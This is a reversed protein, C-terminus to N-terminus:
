GLTGAGAGTAEGSASPLVNPRGFQWDLTPIGDVLRQHLGRPRIGHRAFLQMSRSNRGPENITECGEVFDPLLSNFYELMDLSGWRHLAVAKFLDKLKSSGSIMCALNKYVTRHTSGQKVSEDDLEDQSDRMELEALTLMAYLRMNQIYFWIPKYRLGQEPSAGQWHMALEECMDTPLFAYHAALKLHLSTWDGETANLGWEQLEYVIQACKLSPEIRPINAVTVFGKDAPQEFSAGALPHASDEHLQRIRAYINQKRREEFQALM